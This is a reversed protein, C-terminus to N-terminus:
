SPKGMGPLFFFVCVLDPKSGVVLVRFLFSVIVTSCFFPASWRRQQSCWSVQCFTCTHPAKNRHNRPTGPILKSTRNTFCTLCSRFHGSVPKYKEFCPRKIEGFAQSTVLSYVLLRRRVRRATNIENSWHLQTGSWASTHVRLSGSQTRPRCFLPALKPYFGLCNSCPTKSKRFTNSWTTPYFIWSFVSFVPLILAYAYRYLNAMASNTTVHKGCLKHHRTKRRPHDTQNQLQCRLQGFAALIENSFCSRPNIRRALHSRTFFGSRFAKATAWHVDLSDQLSTQEDRSLIGFSPDWWFDNWPCDKSTSTSILVMSTKPDPAKHRWTKSPKEGLM